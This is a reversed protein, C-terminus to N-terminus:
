PKAVDKGPKGLWGQERALDYLLFAFIVAVM